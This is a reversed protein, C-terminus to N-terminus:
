KIKNIKIIKPWLKAKIVHAVIIITFTIRASNMSINM